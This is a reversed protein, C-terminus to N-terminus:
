ENTQEDTEWSNIDKDEGDGGPANDGGYSSIDYVGQVGPCVYAYDNGWPDKPVATKQYLYGGQKWKRPIVGVTPASVLASLGQETSPFTGNDLKYLVLATGLSEIQTRAQQRRAEGVKGLYNAAAYTGLIGLIIVVVIMEILTFGREDPKKMMIKIRRIFFNNLYSL